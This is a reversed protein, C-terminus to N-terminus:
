KNDKKIDFWFRVGDALNECGYKEGMIKQMTAVVSLGLGFRGQQRSHSKDARYFSQWINEIDTGPIPKGTNIVDIRYSDGVDSARVTIRKEFDVHSLANSFYNNFINEILITDSYGMYSGDVDFILEVGKEKLQLGRSRIIEDLLENINFCTCNAKYAGSYFNMYEMLRVILNNMKESEDIIIDCFEETSDCGIGLKMGEAYGRIISIPTKLEHSVGAIFSRRAKDQKKEARIDYELQINKNQLTDLAESLKDSLTNISASLEDLEKVRYSHCRDSFDMNAMNRTTNKIQRIPLAFLKSIAAIFGLIVALVVGTLVALAISATKANEKIVDVSYYAELAMDEGFFCGYVLYEANAYMEQRIEFYSGNKNEKRSLIKMIRPRLEATDAEGVYITENSQSTYILVDRPSYIEFYLNYEAEYDSLRSKYSSDSFDLAEIKEAADVINLRTAILFIDDMFVFQFVTLLLILVVTTLSTALSYSKRIDREPLSMKNKRM